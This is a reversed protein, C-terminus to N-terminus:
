LYRRLVDPAVAPRAYVAVYRPGVLTFATVPLVPTYLFCFAIHLFLTASFSRCVVPLVGAVAVVAPSCRVRLLCRMRLAGGVRLRCRVYCVFPLYRLLAPMFREVAVFDVRLQLRLLVTALLPLLRVFAGACRLPLVVCWGYFFLFPLLFRCRMVRHVVASCCFLPVGVTHRLPLACYPLSAVYLRYIVAFILPCYRCCAPLDVLVIVLVVARLMFPMPPLNLAYRCRTCRVATVYRLPLLTFTVVYRLLAGVIQLPVV